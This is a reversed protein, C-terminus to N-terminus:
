CNVQHRTPIETKNARRNPCNEKNTTKLFITSNGQKRDEYTEWYKITYWNPNEEEIIKIEVEEYNGIIDICFQENHSNYIVENNKSLLILQYDAEGTYTSNDAIIGIEKKNQYTFKYAKM